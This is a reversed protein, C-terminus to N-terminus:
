RLSLCKRGLRISLSMAAASLLVLLVETAAFAAKMDDYQWDQGRLGASSTAVDILRPLFIAAIATSGVALPLAKSWFTRALRKRLTAREARLRPETEDIAKSVDGFWLGLLVTVVALLLSATAIINAVEDTM